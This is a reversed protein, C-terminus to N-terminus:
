RSWEAESMHSNNYREKCTSKKL